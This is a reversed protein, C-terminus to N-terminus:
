KKLTDNLDKIFNNWDERRNFFDYGHTQGLYREEIKKYCSGMRCGNIFLPIIRKVCGNNYSQVAQKWEYVYYREEWFEEDKEIEPTILAIFIKSKKIAEAISSNYNNSGTLGREDIWVRYNMDTLKTFLIKADNFNYNKYSIFIDFSEQRKEKLVEWNCKPDKLRSNIEVLFEEIDDRINLRKRLLYKRLKNEEYINKDLSFVIDGSKVHSEKSKPNLLRWFFRFYWDDFKCGIALLKRNLIYSTFENGGKMKEMWDMICDIAEDDNKVYKCKEDVPLASGFIHFLVPKETSLRGFRNKGLRETFKYFDLPYRFVEFNDEGFAEEMAIDIFSDVTTTLFIKSSSYKLFDILCPLIKEKDFFSEDYGNELTLINHLPHCNNSYELPPIQNFHKIKDTDNKGKNIEDLLYKNVDGGSFEKKLIANSGIIIVYKDSILDVMLQNLPNESSKKKNKNLIGM